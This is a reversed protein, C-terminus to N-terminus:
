VFEILLLFDGDHKSVWYNCHYQMSAAQDTGACYLMFHKQPARAWNDYNHDKSPTPVSFFDVIKPKKAKETTPHPDCKYDFVFTHYHHSHHLHHNQQSNSKRKQRRPFNIHQQARAMFRLLKQLWNWIKDLKLPNGRLPSCCPKGCSDFQWLTKQNSFSLLGKM